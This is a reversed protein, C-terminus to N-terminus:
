SESPPPSSSSSSPKQFSRVVVLAVVLVVVSIGEEERRAPSEGEAARARAASMYMPHCGKGSPESLGRMGHRAADGARTNARPVFRAPPTTHLGPPCLELHLTPLETRRLSSRLRSRPPSSSRGRAHLPRGSRVCVHHRPRGFERSEVRSFLSFSSFCACGPRHSEIVKYIFPM